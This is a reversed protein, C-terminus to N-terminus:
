ARAAAADRLADELSTRTGHDYAAQWAAEGLSAAAKALPEEIEAQQAPQRPWENRTRSADAAGLLGAALTPEGLEALVAAYDEAVAIMFSLMRSNIIVLMQERMLVEAESAKGLERLTCAKNHVVTAIAYRQRAPDRMAIARDYIDLAMELNGDYAENDALSTLVTALLSDHGAREAADVAERLLARPTDADQATAMHSQALMMLSGALEVDDGLRRWMAVGLTLHERGRELDGHFGTVAGLWVHCRAVEPSDADPDGLASSLWRAGEHLYGESVWFAGLAGALRRGITLRELDSSTHAPEELTWRLGERLNDNESNLRALTATLEDGGGVFVPWMDEAVQAYHEAHATRVADHEGGYERLKELAFARVTELMHIRPEGDDDETVIVLSADVLEGLLDLPDSDALLDACVAEVADLDAGGAFVGLRRVAAQHDASLLDYSWMITDRLTQQRSPHGTDSVKFDLAADLRSLLAKPSLLKLRAAAIEVALPLGDLRRCVAAVDALNEDNVTFSPRVRQASTEFLRVAGADAAHTLDDAPPVSLPPTPHEHEGPLRLPRRSTAIVVVQMAEKQLEDVVRSAESIQELNDLVLLATRHAVHRFFAPPIRGEPPLGLSEAITTWMVDGDTVAALDVFYVGGPFGGALRDAVGIALRTKGSGGPGTLTVLRVEGTSLLAVLERIEGDRGILQTPLRPLSSVAGLTRLPPFDVPLGDIELQVLREPVALDKLRHQGMERLRVGAPLAPGVLDATAASVVVQGGHAAAAIRAGRHVDMGVYGGDHLAPSGTHVGMRVKVQEGQPWRYAALARQAEVAAAVAAPATEFVVFFSDGETGMEVGGHATWAARLIRRQGALAERYAEGLRALLATSGEMDSFLLSVTGSPLEGV